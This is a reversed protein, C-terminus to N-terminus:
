SRRVRKTSKKKSVKYKRNRTQRRRQKKKGGPMYKPTGIGRTPSPGRVSSGDSLVRCSQLILAVQNVDRVGRAHMETQIINYVDMLQVMRGDRMTYAPSTTSVVAGEVRPPTADYTDTLYKSGLDVVEGTLTDIMMFVAPNRVVMGSEFEGHSVKGAGFLFLDPVEDDKHQPLNVSIPSGPSFTDDRLLHVLYLFQAGSLTGDPSKIHPM